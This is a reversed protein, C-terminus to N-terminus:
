KTLYSFPAVMDRVVYDAIHLAVLVRAEPASCRMTKGTKRVRIETRPVVRRAPTKAPLTQKKKRPM